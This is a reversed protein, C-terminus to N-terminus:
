RSTAQGVRLVRGDRSDTVLYIFGDPGQQVDRIRERLDGLYREERAVKGDKLTLRVLLGPTLSGVLISGKWGPFVDGTYFAMGSPAIVPDWYYVPQEMGPRATGEGIKAGSYDVGYTIVPWGYNKGAQPHNLEDGGRAGHEVTWLQGTEPHLAASQVNRHGYSWIERRAGSRGVFPNDKPVSGDSNLRVIKGLGSSLDQARERRGRDGQTVFLTGDRAFVLRSGFHSGGEVKLQQRYIVQVEELKGEGLRGRSVATGATSGEGPEAYSLYVLRNETFRPDLAIDLLGGQGRAFVLSVGELPKSVRNREIIRLRGPRETVLIKGDPLFALAWPHDLGRAVTEARVTGNVSTPTPSRPAQSFALRPAAFILCVAVGIALKALTAQFIKM